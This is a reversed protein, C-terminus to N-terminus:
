FPFIVIGIHSKPLAQEMKLIPTQLKKQNPLQDQWLITSCRNLWKKEIGGNCRMFLPLSIDTRQISGSDIIISKSTTSSPQEAEVASTM